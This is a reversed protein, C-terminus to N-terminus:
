PNRPQELDFEAAHPVRRGVPKGALYQRIVWAVARPEEIVLSHMGRPVAVLQANPLEAALKYGMSVPLVEDRVGWVILTPVQVKVYSAVIADIRDWDPRDGKYPVARSLMAQMARRREWNTLIAMKADAEERLAREPKAAALAVGSAVRDRLVGLQLATWVRVGSVRSVEILLPHVKEVAVDLPALLVLHQVRSLVDDYEQRLADDAFMRLVVAGGLSHAVLVLPRDPPGDGLYSRLAQLTRRACDRVTYVEPPVRDPDPCDSDGCGPLDVLLLDHDAALDGGLYRWMGHDAFAGHVCVFLPGTGHPAVQHLAMRITPQDGGGTPVLITHNGVADYSARLTALEGVSSERALRTYSGSGCGALSIVCALMLLGRIVVGSL